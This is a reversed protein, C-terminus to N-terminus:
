QKVLDRVERVTEAAKLFLEELIVLDKEKVKKREFLTEWTERKSIENLLAKLYVLVREESILGSLTFDHQGSVAKYARAGIYCRRYGHIVRYYHREVVRREKKSYYTHVIRELRGLEGCKPCVFNDSVIVSTVQREEGM